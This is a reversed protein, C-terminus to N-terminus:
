KQDLIAGSIIGPLKEEIEALSKLCFQFDAETAPRNGFYIGDVLNSFSQFLPKLGRLSAKSSLAMAYEYNSRAAAFALVHAEDLLQLCARHLIRCADALNGEDKLLLAQQRWQAATRLQDLNENAILDTKAKWYITKWRKYQWYAFIAFCAFLFITLGIALAEGASSSKRISQELWSMFVSLWHKFFQCIQQWLRSLLPPLTIIEKYQYDQAVARVISHIDEFEARM